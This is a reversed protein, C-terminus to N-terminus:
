VSEQTGFLDFALGLLVLGFGLVVGRVRGGLEGACGDRRRTGDGLVVGLAGLAREVLGRAGGLLKDAADDPTLYTKRKGKIGGEGGM